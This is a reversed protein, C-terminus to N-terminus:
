YLETNEGGVREKQLDWKHHTTVATDDTKSIYLLKSSHEVNCVTKIQRRMMDGLRDYKVNPVSSTLSQPQGMGKRTAKSVVHMNSWSGQSMKSM